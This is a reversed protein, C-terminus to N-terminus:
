GIRRWAGEPRPVVPARQSVDSQRPWLCFAALSRPPPSPPPPSPPPPSPPPPSPPPPSPPPSPCALALGAPGSTTDIWGTTATPCPASSVSYLYPTASSDAYDAGVAWSGFAAIYYLYAGGAHQYVSRGDPTQVGLETYVGMQDPRSSEAGGVVVNGCACEGSAHARPWFFSLLPLLLM